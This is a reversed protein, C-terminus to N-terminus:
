LQELIETFRRGCITFILNSRNLHLIQECFFDITREDEVIGSTM